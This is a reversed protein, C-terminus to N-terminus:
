AGSFRLSRREMLFSAKVSKLKTSFHSLWFWIWRRFSLWPLFHFGWHQKIKSTSASACSPLMVSVAICMIISISLKSLHPYETWIQIEARMMDAQFLNGSLLTQQAGRGWREPLLMKKIIIIQWIGGMARWPSKKTWIQIEARMDAQLDILNGSLRIVAQRTAYFSFSIHSGPICLSIISSRHM